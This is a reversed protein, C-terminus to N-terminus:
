RWTFKRRDASTQLGDSVSAATLPRLYSEDFDFESVNTTWGDPEHRDCIRVTYEPTALNPENTPRLVEM